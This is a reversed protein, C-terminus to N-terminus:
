PADSHRLQLPQQYQRQAQHEATLARDHRNIRGAHPDLWDSRALAVPLHHAARELLLYRRM